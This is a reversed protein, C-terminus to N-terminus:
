TTAHHPQLREQLCSHDLTAHESGGKWEWGMTPTVADSNVLRSALFGKHRLPKTFALSITPELVLLSTLEFPSVWWVESTEPVCSRVDSGLGCACRLRLGRKLLLLLRLM